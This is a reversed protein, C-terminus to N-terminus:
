AGHLLTSTISVLDSYDHRECAGKRRTHTDWKNWKAYWIRRRSSWGDFWNLLESPLPPDSGELPKVDRTDSLKVTPAELEAEGGLIELSHRDFPADCTM